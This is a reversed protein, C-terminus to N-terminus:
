SATFLVDVFYGTQNFEVDPYAPAASPEHFRGNRIGAQNAPATIHGNVIASQLLFNTATYRDTWVAPVYMAPSAAVVIPANFLIQNWGSGFVLGTWDKSALQTGTSDSDFRYLLAKPTVGTATAPTYWRIGAVQGPVAFLMTTGVTIGAADPQDLFNPIQSTFLSEYVPATATGGGYFSRDTM